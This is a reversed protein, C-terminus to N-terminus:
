DTRWYDILARLKELPVGESWDNTTEREPWRTEALRQKLDDLTSQPAQYAFPTIEQFEM